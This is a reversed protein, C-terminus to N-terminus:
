SSSLRVQCTSGPSVLEGPAPLQERIIGFGSSQVRIGLKSCTTVATRLGQGTLDPMRVGRSPANVTVLPTHNRVTPAAASSPHSMPTAQNTSTLVVDAPPAETISVPAAIPKGPLDFPDPEDPLNQNAALLADQPDFPVDPKAGVIPLVMEAIRKFVPAAADGGHHAGFPPEDVVVAIVVKPKEVPALGIFSAFYKVESYRGIKHDFKKATGTKGGASYGNLKAKKATGREVVNRLMTRMDQATKVSVVRRTKPETDFIVDGTTSLINRVIHPQVWVGDNALAGIAGALQLPTVQIEYGMPLSAYSLDSWRNVGGIAGASEAPFGADTSQGFGFREVYKLLREKGLQRGTKIAAVNSSVSIAETATLMGYGGGDRVTHGAITISGGQCNIGDSPRLLKEELAASYTVIKFVSGPEYAEEAVRNRRARIDEEDEARTNPDFTPTTALALIDGTTPDMVVAMMGKARTSAVTEKLIQETKYQIRQDVTLTLSQGVESTQQNRHFPRGKADSEVLVKGATGRLHKDFEREVGAVGQEEFNVYGLVTSALENQPYSRKTETVFQIGPIDLQTIAKAQDDTIKRKLPVFVKSSTLRQLVTERPMDLIKALEDVHPAPKPVQGPSIYVSSVETSTALQYGNRDTITGRRPTTEVVRQQQQEARECMVQHEHVQYKVLRGIILGMWVLLVVAIVGLRVPPLSQPPPVAVLKKRTTKQKITERLAM